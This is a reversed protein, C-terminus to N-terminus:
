ARAAERTYIQTTSLSAHGLRAQVDSLAVGRELSHHAFSHRLIHPSLDRIGLQEAYAKVILWFGQRTLRKGRHNVFLATEEAQRVLASRATSLYEELATAAADELPLVRVEGRRSACRIAVPDEQFDGLNCAVLESVRMGTAYLVELMARDRMREPSSERLPLELLEDVQEITLSRPPQRRQRPATLGRAVHDATIGHKQLYTGFTHVAALRRQITSLAYRRENLFNYFAVAHEARMDQWGTIGQTGLFTRLQDLDTRYAAQTNASHGHESGMEALFAEIQENM